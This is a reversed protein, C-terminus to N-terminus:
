PTGVIQQMMSEPLKIVMVDLNGSVVPNLGRREYPQWDDGFVIKEEDSAMTRPWQWAFLLNTMGFQREDYVYTRTTEWYTQSLDHPGYCADTGNLFIAAKPQADDEITQFVINDVPIELIYSDGNPSDFWLSLATSPWSEGHISGAGLFFTGDVYGSAGEVRSGIQVDYSKGIEFGLRESADAITTCSKKTKIETEGAYHLGSSKNITFGSVIAFVVVVVLMAVLGVGAGEDHFAFAVFIIAVILLIVCAPVILLGWLTWDFVM